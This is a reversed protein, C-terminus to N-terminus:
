RIPMARSKKPLPQTEEFPLKLLTPPIPPLTKVEIPQNEALRILHRDESYITSAKRSIATAVIACDANYAKRPIDWRKKKADFFEPKQTQLISAYFKSAATDFPAIMFHQQLLDTALNLKTKNVGALTEGVVIAPLLVEDHSKALEQILSKAKELNAEEGERCEKLIGWIVINTDLCVLAM